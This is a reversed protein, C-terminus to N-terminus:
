EDLIVVDDPDIWAYLSGKQNKSLYRPNLESIKLRNNGSLFRYHAVEGYYTARGITGKICNEEVREDAFHFAEPRLSLYVRRGPKPEKDPNSLVGKFEGIVSKVYAEGGGSRVVEGEIINTVGIFHSVFRNKPRKYVELPSGIQQVKGDSLVAMRDAISLAEKQDHTVYITTLGFKKCIRQIELRMYYRLQADLNSLPEDMLLCRPRIVLARALAVRQQQGGSLQGPKRSSYAEMHVSALAEDVREKIKVKTVNMQELGFAVNEAVTKNPWLAYSQFVMGTKRKHPPLKSVDEGGFYISGESPAYFGALTRLLTTKGCGSPGLLFFVEGPEVTFDINNLAVTSGFKKVLQKVRVEIMPKHRYLNISGGMQSM